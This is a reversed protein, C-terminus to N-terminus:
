RGMGLYNLDAGKRDGHIVEILKLAKTVVLADVGGRLYRYAMLAAQRDKAVLAPNFVTTGILVVGGATARRLFDDLPSLIRGLLRELPYQDFVKAAERCPRVNM